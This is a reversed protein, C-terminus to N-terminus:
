RSLDVGLRSLEGAVATAEAVTFGDPSFDDCNLKVAIPVNTASRARLELYIERLLRMRNTLSRGVRGHAPQRAQEPVPERPLRARRPGPRRRLRRGAAGRRRGFARIVDRIEGGDM